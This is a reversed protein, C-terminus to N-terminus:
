DNVIYWDQGPPQRCVYKAKVGNFLVIVHELHVSAAFISTIMDSFDIEQCPVSSLAPYFRIILCNLHKAYSLYEEIWETLQDVMEYDDPKIADADITFSKLNPTFEALQDPALTQLYTFNLMLRQVGAPSTSRAFCSVSPPHHNFHYSTVNRVPRGPIVAEVVSMPAAISVLNPFMPPRIARSLSLDRPASVRLHLLSRQSQLFSQLPEDFFFSTSFEHLQFPCADPRPLIWSSMPGIFLFLARLRPLKLLADAIVGLFMDVTDDTITFARVRLAIDPETALKLCLPLVNRRSPYLARYLAEKAVPHVTRNVRCWVALDPSPLCSFILRLVDLPTSSAVSPM